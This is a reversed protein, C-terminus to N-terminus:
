KLPTATWIGFLAGASAYFVTGIGVTGVANAILLGGLVGFGVGYLQENTPSSVTKPDTLLARFFQRSQNLASRLGDRLDDCRAQQTTAQAPNNSAVPLVLLLMFIFALSRM